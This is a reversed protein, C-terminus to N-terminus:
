NYNRAGFIGTGVRIYDAGEEIAVTYDNTMGMSLFYVDNNYLGKDKLDVMLSRLEVFYQRNEEPNEVYPASTMLGCVEINDLKSIEKYNELLNNKTFGFKTEEEAVNVELLIKVKLNHKLAEKNICEALHLTDVSHIMYVKDIIYKIKNSQLHGIMHWRIDKPLSEYKSCLEQVYNEGFDRIGYNYAEEIMENPKTKSVAILTVDSINRKVKSCSNEINNNVIQLNESIMDSM